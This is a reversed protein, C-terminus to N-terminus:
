HRACGGCQGKGSKEGGGKSGGGRPPRRGGGGGGRGGGSKRGRRGKENSGGTYGRHEYSLCCMLRGCVGSIKSPNLALNQQKAMKITVPTFDPLFSSCCLERGCPGIGGLMKAEDRVGIQRMEIRTHFSSALDKVLRRFDVRSESTFYFIAKSSDFLYEAKVLKMPLGYAKIKEMCIKMSEKERRSNFELREMDEPGAKRIVKKLTRGAGAAGNERPPSVVTGMGLGKDVEVIVYDGPKLGQHGGCDYEYVKCARKFRIDVVKM